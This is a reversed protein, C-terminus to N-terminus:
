EEAAMVRERGTPFGVLATTEFLRLDQKMPDSAKDAAKARAGMRDVEEALKGYACLFAALEQAMEAVAPSDKGDHMVFKESLRATAVRVAQDWDLLPRIQSNNPQDREPTVVLAALQAVGLAEASKQVAVVPRVIRITGGKRSVGAPPSAGSLPQSLHKQRSKRPM